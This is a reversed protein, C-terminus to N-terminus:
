GGNMSGILPDVNKLPDFDSSQDSVESRVSSGAAVAVSYKWFIFFVINRVHLLNMM